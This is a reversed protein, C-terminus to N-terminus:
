CVTACGIPENKLQGVGLGCAEEDRITFTGADVRPGVNGPNGCNSWGRPRVGGNTAGFKITGISEVSGLLTIPFVKVACIDGVREVSNTKSTGGEDAFVQLRTKARGGAKSGAYMAGMCILECPPMETDRRSLGAVARVIALVTELPSATPLTGTTCGPFLYLM